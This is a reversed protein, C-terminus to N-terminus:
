GIKQRYFNAGSRRFDAVASPDRKHWMQHAEPSLRSFPVLRLGQQAFHAEAWDYVTESIGQRRVSADVNAHLSVVGDGVIIEYWAVDRGALSAVIIGDAIRIDLDLAEVLTIWKRV